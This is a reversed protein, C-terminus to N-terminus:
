EDLPIEPWQENDVHAEQIAEAQLKLSVKEDSPPWPCHPGGKLVDVESGFADMENEYDLYDIRVRIRVSDKPRVPKNYYYYDDNKGQAWGRSIVEWHLSSHETEQLLTARIWVPMSSKNEIKWEIEKSDGSRLHSTGKGGSMNKINIKVKGMDMSTGEVDDESTFYALTAGGILFSLLFILVFSAAIQKKM